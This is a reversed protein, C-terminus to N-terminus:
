PQMTAAGPSRHWVGGSPSRAPRGVGTDSVRWVVRAPPAVIVPHFWAPHADAPLGPEPVGPGPELPAVPGDLRTVGPEVAPEEGGDGRGADVAPGAARGERGLPGVDAEERAGGGGLPGAEPGTSPAPGVGGRARGLPVTRASTTPVPWATWRRRCRRGPPPPRGPGAAEAVALALEVPQQHGLDPGPGSARARAWRAWVARIRMSVVSSGRASTAKAAPNELTRWNLSVTRATKAM